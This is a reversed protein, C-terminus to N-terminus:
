NSRGRKIVINHAKDIMPVQCKKMVLRVSIYTPNKTKKEVRRGSVEELVSTINGAM